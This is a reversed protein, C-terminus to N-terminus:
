NSAISLLMSHLKFVHDLFLWAITASMYPHSIAIFHAYRSFKDMIVFVRDFRGSKPFGEVFDTSVMEWAAAPV